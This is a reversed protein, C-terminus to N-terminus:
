ATLWAYALDFLTDVEGKTTAAMVNTKFTIIQSRISALDKTIEGTALNNVIFLLLDDRKKIKYENGLAGIDDLVVALPDSILILVPLGYSDYQVEYLPFGDSDFLDGYDTEKLVVNSAQFDDDRGIIYDNLREYRYYLKWDPDDWVHDASPAADLLMLDSIHSQDRAYSARQRGNVDLVYYRKTM